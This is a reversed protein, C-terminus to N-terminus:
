YRRRRASQDPPFDKLCPFLFDTEFEKRRVHANSAGPRLRLALARDYNAIAEELRQMGALALGRNSHYLANSRDLEIARGILDVAVDHRGIQSAIVGLLHLADAHDPQLALTERYCTEAQALRGGQHHALGNAFFGAVRPDPAGIRKATAETARRQKRNM